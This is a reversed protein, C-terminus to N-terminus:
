WDLDTGSTYVLTQCKKSLKGYLNQSVDKEEVDTCVVQSVGMNTLTGLHNITTRLNTPTAKVFINSVDCVGILSNFMTYRVVSDLCGVNFLIVDAVGDLLALRSTWDVTLFFLENMYGIASTVASVNSLKTDAICSTVDGGSLWAHPPMNATLGVTSDIFSETVLDVLLYTKNSKECREKIVNYMSLASEGSSTSLLVFKSKKFNLSVDLSLPITVKALAYNTMLFFPSLKIDTLFDQMEELNGQQEECLAKYKSLESVSVSAAEAEELKQKVSALDSVTISYEKRLTALSDESQKFSEQLETYKKLLGDYDKEKLIDLESELKSIATNLETITKESAEVAQEKERLQIGLNAVMGEKDQVSARVDSLSKTLSDISDSAKSLQVSLEASKSKEESSANSVEETLTKVVNESSTLADQTSQLKGKLTDIETVLSEKEAQIGTLQEKLSDVSSQLEVKVTDSAQLDISKSSLELRIKELSAVQENLSSIVNKNEALEEELSTIKIKLSNIEIDSHEEKLAKEADQKAKALDRKLNDLESQLNANKTELGQLLISSDVNSSGVKGASNLQEELLAIKDIYTNLDENDLSLERIRNRLNAITSDKSAISLKLQKLEDSSLGINSKQVDIKETGESASSYETPVVGSDFHGFKDGLFQRLSDDDEYKLVKPLSLVEDAIGVCLQYLSTDLIILAVEPKKGQNKIKGKIGMSSLEEVVSDPMFKDLYSKLIQMGEQSVGGTFVRSM